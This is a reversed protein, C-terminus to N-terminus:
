GHLIIVVEQYCMRSKDNKKLVFQTWGNISYHFEFILQLFPKYVPNILYLCTIQLVLAGMTSQFPTIRLPAILNHFQHGNGVGAM